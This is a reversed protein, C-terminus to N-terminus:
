SDILCKRTMDSCVKGDFSVSPAGDEVQTMSGSSDNPRRQGILSSSRSQAEVDVEKETKQVIEETDGPIVAGRKYVRGVVSGEGRKTMYTQALGQLITYGVWFSLLIGFNRWADTPFYNFQASLYEPGPVSAVGATSGPIPCGQNAITINQSTNRM